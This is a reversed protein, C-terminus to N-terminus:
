PRVRKPYDLVVVPPVINPKAIRLLGYGIGSLGVMMGPTDEEQPIGCCWGKELAEQVIITALQEAKHRLSHNQLKDAAVLLVELNGFDGHCQCHSGGFGEHVTTQIANEIEQQIMADEYYPLMMLRGLAIGSAGHCWQVPHSIGLRKREERYRLDAWNKEDPMYMTREYEIAKQSCKLFRVDNTVGYLEALAWAIGATGHSLGVLPTEKELGSIWGCGTELNVANKLLHEGCEIAIKLAHINQTMKYLRLAVLLTGAAGAILDYMQDRNILRKCEELFGLAEQMCSDDDWLMAFHSLVYAVSANGHFASLSDIKGMRQIYDQASRLTAYAVDKYKTRGSVEALYAYFLGVGLVGDYLTADLPTLMWRNNLSAGIGIWNVDRGQDGWYASKLIREGMDIAYEIFQQSSYPTVPDVRSFDCRNEKYDWRKLMRAMSIRIYRVQIACDKQSMSRIRQITCELATNHYFNSVEKGESDWISRSDIRSQFFPIDGNLLDRTESPVLEAMRKSYKVARWMYDFLQVRDLGDKLYDPHLGAELMTAYSQTNRLISRVRDKKFVFIPGNEALLEEKNHLLIHYVQEFGFVIEEVYHQPEVAKGEFILQNDAGKSFGRKKVMRMRDTKEHEFGYVPRPLEQGAHGGLGSLDINKFSGRKFLSAPLIGVRLVSQSLENSAKQLATMESTDTPNFNQFLSELDIFYPHEGDVIMNEMHIDTAHLIHLIAIYGGLRKFYNSVQKRSQCSNSSM